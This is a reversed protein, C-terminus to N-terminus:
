KGEEKAEKKTSKLIGERWKEYVKGIKHRLQWVADIMRADSCAPCLGSRSLYNAAKGCEKCIKVGM